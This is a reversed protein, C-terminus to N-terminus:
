AVHKKLIQTLVIPSIIGLKEAVEKDVLKRFEEWPLFEINAKAHGFWRAVAHAFGRLTIASPSVVHFSEGVSTSWNNIAKIFSQAVDEGPVHHVTEMGINPLMLIEGKAITEFVRNDRNGQPNVTPYGPGTIHGPHIVTVPFGNLRAERMLYREILSKQIGYEGFPERPLEETAPM